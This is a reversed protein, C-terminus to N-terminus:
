KGLCFNTFLTDLLDLRHYQGLIDCIHQYAQHLDIAVLELEMANEMALIAQKLSGQAQMLLGLQRQTNLTEPNALIRDTAFLLKIQDILQGIDQQLASIAIGEHVTVLDAKNYVTISTKNGILELLQQDISNPESADIVLIVLQAQAIAQKSKEIGMAELRDAGERIGATDVLRLKVGELVISGEVLDRTTGALESVLAKDEQILANLLSSKGVNPAGVIATMIGDKLLLNQQSDKIIKEVRDHWQLALPLLLQNTLEVVDDYEPYDINVEINAIINLLDTRLEEILSSVTGRLGSIAKTAEYQTNAMVLDNIAEAQSLDIRHNLYALQTFEGPLAMRAGAGILLGLVRNAVYRGGHVNIEVIDETTYTRPSQFYSVLVEDVVEGESIVFNYQITHTTQEMISKKLVRNAISKAESGSLRIIAIASVTLSSALAVITDQLM